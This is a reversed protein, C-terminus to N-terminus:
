FLSGGNPLFLAGGVKKPRGRKKLGFGHKAAESNGLNLGAIIAPSYPALEPIKTVADKLANVIPVRIVQSIKKIVPLAKQFGNKLTHGAKKFWSGISGGHIEHQYPDFCITASKGNEYAKMLKKHQEKSVHIEEGSGHKVRVGEGRMLKRKQNDSLHTVSIKKYHNLGPHNSM